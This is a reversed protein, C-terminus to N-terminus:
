DNAQEPELRKEWLKQGAVNFHAVTLEGTQGDIDV